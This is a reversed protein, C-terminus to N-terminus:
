SAKAQDARREELTRLVAAHRRALDARHAEDSIDRRAAAWVFEAVRVIATDDERRRTVRALRALTDLLRAAVARNPGAYLAVPEFAEELLRAFTRPRTMVRIAGSADTRM